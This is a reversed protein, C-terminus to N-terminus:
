RSRKFCQHGSNIQVATKFNGEFYYFIIKDGKQILNVRSDITIIELAPQLFQNLFFVTFYRIIFDNTLFPRIVIFGEPNGYLNKINFRVARAFAFFRRFLIRGMLRKISFVTTLPNEVAHDRAASGITIRGSAPDFAAFSPVLGSDETGDPARRILQPGAQDALAVLSNTTGLDIGIITDRDASM